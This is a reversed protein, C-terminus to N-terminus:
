RRVARCLLYDASFGGCTICSTDRRDAVSVCLCTFLVYSLLMHSASLRATSACSPELAAYLWQHCGIWSQFVRDRFDYFRVEVRVHARIGSFVAPIAGCRGRRPGYGGQGMALRNSWGPGLDGGECLEIAGGHLCPLHSRPLSGNVSFVHATANRVLGSSTAHGVDSVNLRPSTPLASTTFTSMEDAGIFYFGILHPPM